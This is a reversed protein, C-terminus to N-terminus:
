VTQQSIPILLANTDKPYPKRKPFRQSVTMLSKICVNANSLRSHTSAVGFLFDRRASAADRPFLMSDIHLGEVLALKRPHMRGVDSTPLIDSGQRPIQSM